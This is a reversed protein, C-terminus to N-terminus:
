NEEAQIRKGEALRIENIDYTLSRIEGRYSYNNAQCEKYLLQCIRAAKAVIRANFNAQARQKKNLKLSHMQKVIEANVAWVDIGSERIIKLKEDKSANAPIHYIEGFESANETYKQQLINFEKDQYQPTFLLIVASFLIVLGTGLGYRIIPKTLKENFIIYCISFGAILGGLHASNDIRGQIGNLLMFVTVIITSIFLARTANKEFAKSLLLALFAGFLGMIAGSAGAMFGVEHYMLSVLGGCIGSLLYIFIFKKGGLKHEIMLGLYLLAYMNFFLHMFSWHVFQHTLLRWYQGSLVLGRNNAGIYSSVKTHIEVADENNFYRFMVVQFVVFIFYYVVNVIVLIPTAIYGKQPLFLYLVNKIKNKVTLPAKEFYDDDQTAIFEHFKALSEEWVDKLHFEVYALEHFFKDLNLSNKGYDNFLLQIGVCESKVLAFNTDIRITIEESYSQFSIPTYAILGTSSIHSLKWGLNEIAQKAIILYKDQDFDGLPIYKEIKPSYGWSTNM